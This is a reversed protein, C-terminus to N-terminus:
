ARKKVNEFLFFLRFIVIRSRSEGSVSRRCCYVKKWFDTDYVERPQLEQVLVIISFCTVM